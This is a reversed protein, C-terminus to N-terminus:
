NNPDVSADCKKQKGNQQPHSPLLQAPCRCGPRLVGGRIVVAVAKRAQQYAAAATRGLLRKCRTRM